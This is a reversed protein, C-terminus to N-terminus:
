LPQHEKMAAPKQIVSARIGEYAHDCCWIDGHKVTCLAEVKFVAVRNHKVTVADGLLVEIVLPDLKVGDRAERGHADVKEARTNTSVADGAPTSASDVLAKIAPADEPRAERAFDGM